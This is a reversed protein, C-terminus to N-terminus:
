LQLGRQIFKCIRFKDILAADRRLRTSVRVRPVRAVRALWALAACRSDAVCVWAREPWGRRVLQLSHWARKLVTHHGRGHQADFRESPGLVTLLPLAWGRQAGAIPPLGM